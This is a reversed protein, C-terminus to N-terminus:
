LSRSPPPFRASPCPSSQCLSGKCHLCVSPCPRHLCCELLGKQPHGQLCGWVYQGKHAHTGTHRCVHGGTCTHSCLIPLPAAKLSFPCHPVQPFRPSHSNSSRPDALTAHPHCTSRQVPGPQGVTPGVPPGETPLDSFSSRLDPPTLMVPAAPLSVVHTPPSLRFAQNDRPVRGRAGRQPRCPTGMDPPRAQFPRFTGPLLRWPSCSGAQDIQNQYRRPPAPPRGM